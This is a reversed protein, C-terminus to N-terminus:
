PQGGSPRPPTGARLDAVLYPLYCLFIVVAAVAEATALYWPWPGMLDLLSPTAPKRMIFLYNTGTLYNLPLILLGYANMLLWARAASGLTPRLRMVFTAYLASALILGHGVFFAICVLAPFGSFLTPTALAQLAGGIGWFYLLEYATRNATLLAVPAILISVDCLHLPLYHTIPAQGEAAGVGLTVAEFALCALALAWRAVRDLRPSRAARVAWALAVSGGIAAGAAVLHQLGLPTFPSRPM